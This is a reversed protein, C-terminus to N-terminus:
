GNIPEKYKPNAMYDAKRLKYKKKLCSDFIIVKGVQKFFGFLKFYKEFNDRGSELHLLLNSLEDAGINQSGDENDNKSNQLQLQLKKFDNHEVESCFTVPKRKKLKSTFKGITM